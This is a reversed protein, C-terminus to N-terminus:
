KKGEKKWKCGTCGKDKQGLETETYVCDSRFIFPWQQVAECVAHHAIGEAVIPLVYTAPLSVMRKFPKRNHCGNRRVADDGSTGAANGRIQAGM